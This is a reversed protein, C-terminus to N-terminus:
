QGLVVTRLEQLEARTDASIQDGAKDAADAARRFTARAEEARKCDHLVRALHLNTQVVAQANQTLLLARNLTSVAQDCRGVLGYVVGLTDLVEYSGSNTKSAHEAMPVAEEGKGQHKALLYALNNLMEVDNPYKAVGDRWVAEAEPYRKATYLASGLRRYSLISVARDQSNLLGRLESVGREVLAPDARQQSMLDGRFYAMWEPAINLQQTRELFSQLRPPDPLIRRMDNYWSLLQAPNKQDLLAVAQVSFQAMDQMRGQGQRLKAYAMLYGPNQAAVEAVGPAKLALEAAVLDPPTANLLADLYRQVIGPSKDADFARKLFSQAQSWQGANYFVLGCNALLSAEGPRRSIADNASDVAEANRGMRVLDSILGLVLENNYPALRAAQRLDRVADDISGLQVHALARMRLTRWDDPALQVARSFDALADRATRTEQVLLEGRRVFVTPNNPFLSVARDLLDRAGKLDDQVRRADAMLLLTVADPDKAALPALIKEAEAGRQLGICCEAARKAFVKDPSDVGGAIVRNTAELCRELQGSRMLLDSMARDVELSKPDQRDRGRDLAQVAGDLDNQGLLFQALALFPASDLKSQDLSAIYTDFVQRGKTKDNQAYHWAADLAVADLGDFQARIQDIRQRADTWQKLQLHLSALAVLNDRNGPAARAIEFRRQLAKDKDGTEAELSLWMHTFEANGRAYKENERAFRLGTDYQALVIYSQLLDNITPVDNPRLRLAETYSKVADARRGQGQQIRGLLRWAEPAAGGAKVVEEMLAIAGAPNGQTAILRAKFTKGQARDMNEAAARDAIRQAEDFRRDELADMFLLEIVRPDDPAAASARTRLDALLERRGAERAVNYKALLRDAEPMDQADLLLFGRQVPDDTQVSIKLGKLTRDEPRRRLGEDIVRAAEARNADSSERMYAIALGAVLRPDYDHQECARRLFARVQELDNPKGALDKALRDADALTKSIPDDSAGSLIALVAQYRDSVEKNDPILNLFAEYGTKAEEWQQLQAYVDALAITARLDTERVKLYAKLLDRARGIQQVNLAVQAGLWLAEADASATKANYNDLLRNATPFDRNMYAHIADVLMLGPSDPREDKAYLERHRRALGAAQAVAKEDPNEATGLYEWNKAAWLAQLYRSMNRLGFLRAGEAGVPKKPMDVVRQATDIADVYARRAALLDARLMILEAEDPRAQLAARVAEETRSGAARPDVLEEVGRLRVFMAFTAEEPPLSRVGQVVAELAPASRERFAITADRLKARNTENRLSERTAILDKRLQYIVTWPHGPRRQALDAMVKDSAERMQRAADPKQADELRQAQLAYWGELAVYAEVDGPDAAIVAQLDTRVSEVLDPKADPNREIIRQNAFARYRRLPDAKPDTVASAGSGTQYPALLTETERIIHDALGRNFDGADFQAKLLDLYARQAAPDHKKNIALQRHAGNYWNLFEGFESPTDPVVKQMCALWKELYESNSLEKNVAKAYMRSAGKYDNAAMREDGLRALEESSRTFISYAFIAVGLFAAVLVGSLIIVFKKNVRSAM